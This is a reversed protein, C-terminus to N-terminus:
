YLRKESVYEGFHTNLNLERLGHLAVSYREVLEFTDHVEDYSM